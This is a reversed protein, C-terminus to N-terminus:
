ALLVWVPGTWDGELGPRKTHIYRAYVHLTFGAKDAGFKLKFRAKTFIEKTTGDDPSELTTRKLKTGPIDGDGPVEELVPADLRYRIEVADATEPISSRTADSEFKCSVQASGGGVAEVLTYCKEEIPTHTTSHSTVPEAINLVARDDSTIVPSGSMRLLLPNVYAKYDKMFNVVKVRTVPTKTRKDRHLDYIGPNAPDGSAWLLTMDKVKNMEDMLLGLSIGKHTIGDPLFSFIFQYFLLIWDNFPLISDPIRSRSM